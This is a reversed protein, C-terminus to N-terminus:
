QRFATWRVLGFRGNLWQAVPTKSSAVSFTQFCDESLSRELQRFPDTRFGKQWSIILAM